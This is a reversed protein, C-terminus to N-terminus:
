TIGTRGFTTLFPRSHSRIRVYNPEERSHFSRLSHFSLSLFRVYHPPPVIHHRCAGSVFLFYSAYWITGGMRGKDRNLRGGNGVGSVNRVTMSPSPHGTPAPHASMVPLHLTVVLHPTNEPIRRIKGKIEKEDQRRVWPWKVESCEARSRLTLAPLSGSGQWTSLSVISRNHSYPVAPCLSSTLSLSRVARKESCENGVRVGPAKRRWESREKRRRRWETLYPIFPSLTLGFSLPPSPLRSSLFRLATLLLARNRRWM